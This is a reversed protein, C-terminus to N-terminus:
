TTYRDLLIDTEDMQQLGCSFVNIRFFFVIPTGNVDEEYNLNHNTQLFLILVVFRM